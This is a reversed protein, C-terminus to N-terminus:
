CIAHDRVDLGACSLWDRVDAIGGTGAELRRIDQSLRGILGGQLIGRSASMRM